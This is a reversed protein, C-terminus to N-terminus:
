VKEIFFRLKTQEIGIFRMLFRDRLHFWVNWVTWHGMFLWGRITLEENRYNVRTIHPSPPHWLFPPFILRQVWEQTERRCRINRVSYHLMRKRVEEYSISFRQSFLSKQGRLRSIPMSDPNKPVPRISILGQVIKSLATPCLDTQITYFTM